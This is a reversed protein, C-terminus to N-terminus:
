PREKEANPQKNKKQDEKKEKEKPSAEETEMESVEQKKEFNKMRETLDKIIEM